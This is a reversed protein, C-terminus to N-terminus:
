NLENDFYQTITDCLTSLSFNLKDPFTDEIVTERIKSIVENRALGVHGKLIFFTHPQSCGWENTICQNEMEIEAEVADFDYIWTYLYELKLPSSDEYTEFEPYFNYHTIQKPNICLALCSLLSQKFPYEPLSEILKFLETIELLPSLKILKHLESVYGTEYSELIATLEEKEGDEFDEERELRESIYDLVSSSEHAPTISLCQTIYRVADLAARYWEVNEKELKTLFALRPACMDYEVKCARYFVITYTDDEEYGNKEITFDCGIEKSVETLTKNLLEALKTIPVNPVKGIFPLCENLLGKFLGKGGKSSSIGLKSKVRLSNLPKFKVALFRNSFTATNTKKPLSPFCGTKFQQPEGGKGFYPRHRSTVKGNKRTTATQM